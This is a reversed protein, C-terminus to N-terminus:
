RSGTPEHWGPPLDRRGSRGDDGGDAAAGVSHGVPGRSHGLHEQVATEGARAAEWAALDELSWRTTGPSLVVPKPFSPDSKVWRWVTSRSVDYRDAVKKVGLFM